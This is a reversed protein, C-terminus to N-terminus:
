DTKFVLADSLTSTEDVQPPTLDKDNECQVVGDEDFMQFYVRGRREIQVIRLGAKETIAVDRGNSMARQDRKTCLPMISPWRKSAITSYM